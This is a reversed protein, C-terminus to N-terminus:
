CQMCMAESASVMQNVKVVEEATAPLDLNKKGVRPDLESLKDLVDYVTVRPPALAHFARSAVDGANRFLFSLAAVIERSEPESSILGLSDKLSLLLAELIVQSTATSISCAQALATRDYRLLDGNTSIQTSRSLLDAMVKGKLLDFVERSRLITEDNGQSCKEDQKFSEEVAKGLLRGLSKACTMAFESSVTATGDSVRLVTTCLESVMKTTYEKQSNNVLNLPTIVLLSELGAVSAMRLSSNEADTYVSYLAEFAGSFFKEMPHPHLDLGKEKSKVMAVHCSSALAGIGCAAMTASKENKDAASTNLVNILRPLGANLVSRLTEPGGSAALSALYAVAVRGETSTTALKSSMVVVPDKVFVNWLVTINSSELSSAVMSICSRCEDALLKNEDAYVPGGKSVVNSAVEFTYILANSLLQMSSEAVYDLKGSGCDNEEDDPFLLLSVDHLADRKEAASSALNCDGGEVPILRELILGLSLSVMTDQNEKAALWDYEFGRLVNMLADHLGKRTMGHNDHQRPSFNIPYYPACADFMEIIPFTADTGNSFLPELAVQIKRFLLLLQM